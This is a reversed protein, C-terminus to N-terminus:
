HKTFYFGIPKTASFASGDIGVRWSTIFRGKTNSGFREHWLEGKSGCELDTLIQQSVGIGIGIGIGRKACLAFMASPNELRGTMNTETGMPDTLDLPDNHCYRFLNYDSADFLKPDESMFRGLSPHYARARYEYFGFNAAFERGTFLFRNKYIAGGPRPNGGGDYVFPGGFMDYRYKEIVTAAGNALHTV